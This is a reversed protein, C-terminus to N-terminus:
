IIVSHQQLVWFLPVDLCARIRICKVRTYRQYPCRYGILILNKLLDTKCKSQM